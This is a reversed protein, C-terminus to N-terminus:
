GKEASDQMKDFADAIAEEIIDETEILEIRDLEKALCKQKWNDRDRNMRDYAAKQQVLLRRLGDREAIIDAILRAEGNSDVVRDEIEGIDSMIQAGCFQVLYRLSLVCMESVIGNDLGAGGHSSDERHKLIDGFRNLLMHFLGYAEVTSLLKKSGEGGTALEYRYLIQKLVSKGM